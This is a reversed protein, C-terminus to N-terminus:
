SCTKAKKYNDRLNNLGSGIITKLLIFINISEGRCDYIFCDNKKLYNLLHQSGQRDYILIKRPKPKVFIWKAKFFKLILDM